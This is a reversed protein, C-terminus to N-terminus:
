CLRVGLGRDLKRRVQEAGLVDDEGYRRRHQSPQVPVFGGFRQALQDVAAPDAVVGLEQGARLKAVRGAHQARGGSVMGCRNLLQEAALKLVRRETALVWRDDRPSRGRRERECLEAALLFSARQGGFLDTTRLSEAGGAR